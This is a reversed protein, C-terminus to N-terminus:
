TLNDQKGTFCPLKKIQKQKTTSLNNVLFTINNNLDILRSELKREYNLQESLMKDREKIRVNLDGNEDELSNITSMLARNVSEAEKLEKYRKLSIWM